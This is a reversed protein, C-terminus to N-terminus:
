PTQPRNMLEVREDEESWRVRYRSQMTSENVLDDFGIADSHGDVFGFTADGAFTYTDQLNQPHRYYPIYTRPVGVDSRYEPSQGPGSRSTGDWNGPFDSVGMGGGFMRFPTMGAQAGVTSNTFWSVEGDEDRVGSLGWAEGVVFLETSRTADSGFGRMQVMNVTKSPGRLRTTTGNGDIFSSAFFNMTYSRGAEPHNPCTM